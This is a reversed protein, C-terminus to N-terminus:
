RRGTAQNDAMPPAMRRGKAASSSCIVGALLAELVPELVAAFPLVVLAAALFAVLAGTLFVGALFATGGFFAGTLFAGALFAVLAGTLFAGAM